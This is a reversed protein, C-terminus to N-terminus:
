LIKSGCKPKRNQPLARQNRQKGPFVKMRGSGPPLHPASSLDCTLSKFKWTLAKQNPETVSALLLESFPLNSHSSCHAGVRVGTVADRKDHKILKVTKSMDSAM